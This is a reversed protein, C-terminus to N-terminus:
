VLCSASRYCRSFFIPLASSRIIYLCKGRIRRILQSHDGFLDGSDYGDTDKGDIRRDSRSLVAGQLFPTLVPLLNYGQM